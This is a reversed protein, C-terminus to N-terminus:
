IRNLITATLKAVKQAEAASITKSQLTKSLNDGHSLVLEGIYVEFFFNFNEMQTKVGTIRSRVEADLRTELAADWLEQMVTYNDLISKLSAARVTWRTPCLVHIPVLRNQKKKWRNKKGAIRKNKM